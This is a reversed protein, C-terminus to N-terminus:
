FEFDFDNLAEKESNDSEDINVMDSVSSDDVSDNLSDIFQIPIEFSPEYNCYIIDKKGRGNIKAVTIFGLKELNDLAPAIARTGMLGWEDAIETHSVRVPYTHFWKLYGLSEIEEKSNYKAINIQNLFYDYLLRENRGLDEFCNLIKHFAMFTPQVKESSGSNYKKILASIFEKNNDGIMKVSNLKLRTNKVPM